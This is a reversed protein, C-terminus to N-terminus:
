ASKARTSTRPPSTSASRRSNTTNQIDNIVLPHLITVFYRGDKPMIGRSRAQAGLKTLYAWTITDNAGDLDTMVGGAIPITQTPRSSGHGYIAKRVIMDQSQVRSMSVMDAVEKQLDVRSKFQALSTYGVADGYEGPSLTINYDKFGKPTVDVGETLASTTPNLRGFVPWDLTGGFGGREAIPEKWDVFQSHIPTYEPLCALRFYEKRYNTVALNTLDTSLTGAM